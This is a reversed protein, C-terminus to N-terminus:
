VTREGQRGDRRLSIDDRVTGPPPFGIGSDHIRDILEVLDHTRRYRVARFTLVAKLIKEVAQQAHFGIIEDPSQPDPLLKNVTFEDQSAKRLLMLVDEHSPM